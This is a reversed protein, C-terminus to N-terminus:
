DGYNTHGQVKIASPAAAASPLLTRTDRSVHLNSQARAAEIPAFSERVAEAAPDGFLDELERAMIHTGKLEPLRRWRERFEVIAAKFAEFSKPKDHWKESIIEEHNVPNRVVPCGSAFFSHMSDVIVQLAEYPDPDSDYFDAALKTVLISPTLLEERGHFYVDRWRKLLQVSRKLPKKLHYPEPDPVPDVHGHSMCIISAKVMRQKVKKCMEEFWMAFGKPDSAKWKGVTAPMDPILISTESMTGDFVAPVVDLHFKNPFNIRICRPKPKIINKFEPSSALRNWILDYVQRPKMQAPAILQCIIDLDHETRKLTLVTTEILMSGKHYVRPSYQNVPSGDRILWSGVAEHKNKALNFQEQSLQLRSCIAQLATNIHGIKSFSHPNLSM